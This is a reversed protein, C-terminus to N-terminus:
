GITILKRIWGKIASRLLFRTPALMILIGTVDTIVGPTILLLAGVVVHVGDIIPNQPIRGASIDRQARKIVGYGEAALLVAGSIATGVVIGVAWWTGVRRGIEVLLAIELIPIVTLFIFGLIGLRTKWRM